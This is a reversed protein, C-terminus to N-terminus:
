TGGSYKFICSDLPATQTEPVHGPHGTHDPGGPSRRCDIDPGVRLQQGHAFENTKHPNELPCITIELTM